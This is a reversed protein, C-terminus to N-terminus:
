KEICAHLFSPNDRDIYKHNNGHNHVMFIYENGYHFLPLCSNMLNTHYVLTYLTYATCTEEEIGILKLLFQSVTISTHYYCIPISTKFICNFCRIWHKVKQHGSVIEVMYLVSLMYGQCYLILLSLLVQINNNLSHTWSIIGEGGEGSIREIHKTNRIVELSTLYHIRQQKQIAQTGLKRKIAYFM